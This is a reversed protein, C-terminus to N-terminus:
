DHLGRARLLPLLIDLHDTQLYDCGADIASLMGFETDNAGMTNMFAKRDCLHVDRILGESFEPWDM